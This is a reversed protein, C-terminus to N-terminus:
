QGGVEGAPPLELIKELSKELIREFSRRQDGTLMDSSDVTMRVDDREPWVKVIVPSARNFGGYLITKYSDDAVPETGVLVLHSEGLSYERMKYGLRTANVNDFTPKVNPTLSYNYGHPHTKIDTPAYECVTKVFMM